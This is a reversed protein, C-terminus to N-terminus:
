LNSLVIASINDHYGLCSCSDLCILRYSYIGTDLRYGRMFVNESLIFKTNAVMNDKCHLNKEDYFYIM